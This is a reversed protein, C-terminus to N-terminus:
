AGRRERGGEQAPKKTKRTNALKAATERSVNRIPVGFISGLQSLDDKKYLYEYGSPSTTSDATTLADALRSYPLQEAMNSLVEGLIGGGNQKRQGTLLSTGTAAEISGTLFPNVGLFAEGPRSKRGTLIADAQMAMEGVTAFPNLSATLMINARGPSDGFGLLSLPIAGKMFEPIEGLAEETTEIGLDSLRAGVALRGPQELLMNGTTKLIHRNWLYFPIIDRLFKETESLTIYDGMIRRSSLAADPQLGPNARLAREIGIDTARGGRYGEKRAKAIAARVEPKSRLASYITMARQNKEIGGVVPYFPGTKLRGV